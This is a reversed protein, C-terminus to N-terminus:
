AVHVPVDIEHRPWLDPAVEVGPPIRDDCRETGGLRVSRMQREGGVREEPVLEGCAYGILEIRQDRWRNRDAAGAMMLSEGSRERQRVGRERRNDAVKDLRESARAEM